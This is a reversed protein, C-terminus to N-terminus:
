ARLVASDREHRYQSGKKHKYTTIDFVCHLCIFENIAKKKWFAYTLGMFINTKLGLQLTLLFIYM